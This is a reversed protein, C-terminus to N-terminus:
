LSNYWLGTVDNYAALELTLGRRNVAGAVVGARAATGPWEGGLVQLPLVRWGATPSDVSEVWCNSLCCEECLLQLSLVQTPM